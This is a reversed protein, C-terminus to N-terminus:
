QSVIKSPKWAGGGYSLWEAVSGPTWYVSNPPAHGVNSAAGTATYVLGSSLVYQGQTYTTAINFAPANIGPNRVEVRCGAAWTGFVVNGIGNPGNNVVPTIADGAAIHYQASPNLRCEGTWAPGDTSLITGDSSVVRAIDAVGPGYGGGANLPGNDILKIAAGGSLNGTIVDRVTLETTFLGASRECVICNPPGAASENDTELTDILYNGGYGGNGHLHIYSESTMGFSNIEGAKINYLKLNSNSFRMLTRGLQAREYTDLEFMCTAGYVAADAGTAILNRAKYDYGGYGMDLGHWGTGAPNLSLNLFKGM